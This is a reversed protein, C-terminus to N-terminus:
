SLSTQSSQARVQRRAAAVIANWSMYNGVGWRELVLGIGAVTLVSLLLWAPWLHYPLANRLSQVGVYYVYSQVVFLILSVRGFRALTAILRLGRQAAANCVGLVTVGLGGYFAFYAPSPPYKGFPTTLAYALAAARGAHHALSYAGKLAVAVTVSALAVAFLTRQARGDHSELTQKGIRQGLVTGALALGFWPLLPFAALNSMPTLSGALLEEFMMAQVTHPHWLAVILWGVVMLGVATIARNMQSMALVLLPATIMALGIVDTTFVSGLCAWLYHGGARYGLPLSILVHAATLLFVGRHFLRTRLEQFEVARTELLFGILFGSMLVFTPSAILTVERMLGRVSDDRSMFADAFHSVCVFLMGVGRAADISNYRRKASPGPPLSGLILLFYASESRGGLRVFCLRNNLKGRFM